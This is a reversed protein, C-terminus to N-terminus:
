PKRETPLEIYAHPLHEFPYIRDPHDPNPEETFDIVMRWGAPKYTAPRRDAWPRDTM